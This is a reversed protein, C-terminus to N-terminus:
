RPKQVMFLAPVFGAYRGAIRCVADTAVGIEDLLNM